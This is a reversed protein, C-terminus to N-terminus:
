KFRIWYPLVQVLFMLKLQVYYYLANFLLLVLRCDDVSKSNGENKYDEKKPEKENKLYDEIKSDDKNKSIAKMQSTIEIKSTTKMKPIMENKLYDESM